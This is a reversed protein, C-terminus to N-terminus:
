VLDVIRQGDKIRTVWLSDTLARHQVDAVEIGANGLAWPLTRLLMQSIILPSPRYRGRQWERVRSHTIHTGRKENIRRVAAALTNGHWEKEATIWSEVLRRM